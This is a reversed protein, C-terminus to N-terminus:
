DPPPTVDPSHHLISQGQRRSAPPQPSCSEQSGPQPPATTPCPRTPRTTPPPPTPAPPKAPPPPQNRLRRRRRRQRHNRQTQNIRRISRSRHSRQILVATRLSQLQLRRHRRRRTRTQRHRTRQTRAARSRHRRQGAPRTLATISTRISRRKTNSNRRRTRLTERNLKRNIHPRISNRLIMLRNLKGTRSGPIRHRRNIQSNIILVSRDLQIRRRIKYQPLQPFTFSRISVITM